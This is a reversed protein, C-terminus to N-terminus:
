VTWLPMNMKILDLKFKRQTACERKKGGGGRLATTDDPIYPQLEM